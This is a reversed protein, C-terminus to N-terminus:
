VAYRCADSHKFVLGHGARSLDPRLSGDVPTIAGDFFMQEIRVHDHFYEIHRLRKAACAPHAHLMPACHASLPVAKAECLSDVIAFGTLGQCRTADAQLVNVANADLIGALTTPNFGYEGIAIEMPAPVHERCTRIGELDLHDVPEEFWTVGSEGFREAQALAQKVTYAGNADVFLAPENGIAARAAAVRSADRAPDRGIKMKVRPIGAEVWGALQRELQAVSYSTFGGSGYIPAANRVRGLLTVLPVDLVRAKLDWLAVNIAAIAMSTLGCRGNNRMHAVLSSWIHENTMVDSGCVLDALSDRILGAVAQDAYTYGIGTLGGGRAEVLVLTTANWVLTGDSEDPTDTPVRYASAILADVRVETARRGHTGQAM